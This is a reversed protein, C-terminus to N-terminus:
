LPLKCDTIEFGEVKFGVGDKQGVFYCYCVVVVVRCFLM